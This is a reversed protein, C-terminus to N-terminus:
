YKKLDDERMLRANKIIENPYFEKLTKVIESTGKLAINELNKYYKDTNTSLIIYYVPLKNDLKVSCVTLKDLKHSYLGTYYTHRYDASLITYSLILGFDLYELSLDKLTQILEKNYDNDISENFRKIIIM